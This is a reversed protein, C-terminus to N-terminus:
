RRLVSVLRAGCRIPRVYEKKGRFSIRNFSKRLQALQARKIGGSAVVPRFTAPAGRPVLRHAARAGARLQRVVTGAEANGRKLELAVVWADDACGIVIYDCRTESGDAETKDMDLLLFPGSVGHLSVSCGEKRCRTVICDSSVRQRIADCLSTM